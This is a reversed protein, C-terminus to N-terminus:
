GDESQLIKIGAAGRYAQKAAADISNEDRPHDEDIRIRITPRRNPAQQGTAPLPITAIQAWTKRPPSQINELKQEIRTLQTHLAHQTSPDQQSLALTLKLAEQARQQTDQLRKQLEQADDAQQQTNDQRPNALDELIQIVPQWQPPINTHTDQVAEANPQDLQQQQNEDNKREKKRQTGGATGARQPPM